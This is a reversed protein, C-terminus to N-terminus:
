RYVCRFGLNLFKDSQIDSFRASARNNYAELNYAGGRSVRNVGSTPGQPNTGSSYSYYDEAYYDNCWERVNGSMDFLGISNGTKTQVERTKSGANVSYWAFNGLLTTEDTGSYRVVTGKSRAAYEWEAETPLKVTKGTKTSLWDCYAKADDWSVNIVPRKARGWGPDVPKTRGTQDCFYDYQEFTVETKCMYFGTVTVGHVPKEDTIGENFNDGMQFTGGDVFVFEPFVYGATIPTTFVSYNYQSKARIKFYFVKGYPYSGTIDVSTVNADVTKYLAYTTGDDSKYIEFGTEIESNDTWQFSALVDTFTTVKFNSPANFQLNGTAINSYQSYNFNSKARVRYKYNVGATHIESINVNTVNEGVTKILSYVGDNENREIEFGTEFSSNDVWTFGVNTETFNILVLSSPAAFPLNSAIAVNSYASYNINTKARVRFLYQNTTLYTGEVAATNINAGVTKVTTYTSGNESREIEYGTEYSSNDQWSLLVATEGYSTIQLNTPANFQIASNVTNSYGSFNVKSKAKIKFNYTKGVLFSGQVTTTTLNAAVTKVESFAGSEESQEIVFGTEFTCNDSWTLVAESEIFNTIQLGTPNNFVISKSVSNAYSSINMPSKARIRFIYGTGLIYEGEVVTSVTNAPVTKVITFDTGNDSKEIYYESEFSSNDQWSLIASTDTDFVVNLNTPKLVLKRQFTQAFSTKNDSYSIGIKYTYTTDPHHWINIVSENGEVTDLAAVSFNVGNLSSEYKIIKKTGIPLQETDVWSVKVEEETFSIVNLNNPNSPTVNPDVPNQFDYDKCSYSVIILIFTFLTILKNKM